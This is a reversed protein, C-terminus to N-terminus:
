LSGEVTGLCIDNINADRKAKQLSVLDYRHLFEVNCKKCKWVSGKRSKYEEYSEDEKKRVYFTNIKWKHKNEPLQTDM